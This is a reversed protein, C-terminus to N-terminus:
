HALAREDAVVKQVIALLWGIIEDLAAEPLDVGYHQRFAAGHRQHLVRKGERRVTTAFDFEGLHALQLECLLGIREGGLMRTAPTLRGGAEFDV